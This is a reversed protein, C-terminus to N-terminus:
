VRTSVGLFSRRLRMRGTNDTQVRNTTTILNDPNALCYAVADEIPHGNEKACIQKFILSTEHGKLAEWKRHFDIAALGEM